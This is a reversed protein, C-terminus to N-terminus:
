LGSVEFEFNLNTKVSNLVMCQKSVREMVRRFRDPNDAGLVSFKLTASRMWAAEGTSDQDLTLTGNAAISAFSLKSNQAIVKLTAIYCNLLAQLYLDEPSLGTNPGEFEKPVSCILEREDATQAKWSSNIGETADATATFNMPYKSM